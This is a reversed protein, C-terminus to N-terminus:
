FCGMNAFLLRSVKKVLKRARDTMQQYDKCVTQVWILVSLVDTRIQIWVTLCRSPTGSFYNQFTLLRVCFCPFCPLNSSNIDGGGGGRSLFMYIM